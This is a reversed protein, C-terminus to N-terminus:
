ELLWLSLFLFHGLVKFVPPYLAMWRQYVVNLQVSTGSTWSISSFFRWINNVFSDTQHVSAFWFHVETNETRSLLSGSLSCLPSKRGTLKRHHVSDSVKHFVYLSITLPWYSLQNTLLRFPSLNFSSGCATQSLPTHFQVNFTSIEPGWTLTWWLASM